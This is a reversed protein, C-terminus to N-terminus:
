KMTFLNTTTALIILIAVISLTGTLVGFVAHGIDQGYEKRNLGHISWLGIVVAPIPLVVLLCHAFRMSYNSVPNSGSGFHTLLAIGWSFCIVIGATGSRRALSRYTSSDIM